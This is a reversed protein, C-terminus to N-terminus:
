KVGDIKFSDFFKSIDQEHGKDTTAFFVLEYFRPSKLIYRAATFAKGPVEIRVNRAPLGHFDISTESILRGGANKVAGNKAGELLEQPDTSKILLAPYDTYAVACGIKRSGAMYTITNVTGFPMDMAENRVEPKGPMLVTFQGEDSRFEKFPALKNNGTYIYIAVCVVIFAVAFGVIGKLRNM